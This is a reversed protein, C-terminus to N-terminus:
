QEALRLSLEGTHFECPTDHQSLCLAGKDNVGLFLGQVPERYPFHLSVNLDRYAAVANWADSFASFGVQEFRMLVGHLQRVIAILLATREIKGHLHARELAPTPSATQDSNMPDIEDPWANTNLGIGIVVSAPEEPSTSAMEILIGALKQGNLLVDNPWKLQTEVGFDQLAQQIALGVVLSLGSLQAINCEFHWLVSFTLSNGISSNWRRNMRGRGQSQHETVLVQAPKRAQASSAKARLLLASNTSPMEDSLEVGLGLSSFAAQLPPYELWDIPSALQYGRGQIRHLTLGFQNQVDQLRQWVVARSIGLAAALQVGSHFGGDSLLRLLAFHQSTKTPKNM